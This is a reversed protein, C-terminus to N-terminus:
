ATEDDTKSDLSEKKKSPCKHKAIEIHKAITLGGSMLALFPGFSYALNGTLKKLETTVLFNDRLDSALKNADDVPLVWSCIKSSSNLFGDVINDSVLTSYTSEYLKYYKNIDLESMNNIDHLTFTKGLFANSQGSAVICGLKSRYQECKDDVIPEAKQKKPRGRSPKKKDTPEIIGADTLVDNIENKFDMYINYICKIVYIIILKILISLLTNIIFLLEM